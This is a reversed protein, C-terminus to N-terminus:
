TVIIALMVIDPVKVMGVDPKAAPSLIRNVWWDVVPSVKNPDTLESKIIGM